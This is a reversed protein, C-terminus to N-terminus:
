RDHSHQVAGVWGQTRQGLAQHGPSVRRLHIGRAAVELTASLKVSGLAPRVSSLSVRGLPVLPLSVRDPNGGSTRPFHSRALGALGSRPQRRFDSPLALSVRGPNIRLSRPLPSGVPSRSALGSRPQNVSTSRSGIGVAPGCACASSAGVRVPGDNM